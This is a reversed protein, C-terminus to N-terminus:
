IRFTIVPIEAHNAIDEGVSGYFFHGVPKRGHTPIAIADIDSESCYNFIGKEATYDDYFVINDQFNDKNKGVDILFNYAKLQMERTSMYKEPINVFLIQPEVDFISFFKRARIYADLTELEFETVFVARKINFNSIKEKVVLVPINSSRVVKETNSGIFVEKMGSAGHSGMVILDADYEQVLENITSFNKHSKVAETIDVDELYAKDLFKQFKKKTIEMYYIANFIEQKEDNTLYSDPIGMMHVAIIEADQKKAISAAVELAYESYESFDVPVLITKM